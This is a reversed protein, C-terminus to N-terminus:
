NCFVTGVRATTICKNLKGKNVHKVRCLGPTMMTTVTHYNSKCSGTCDTGIVVLITLEHRHTSSVINHSLTQWHRDTTKEPYEPKRWWYFQGGRYLQFITSLSTLCLLDLGVL